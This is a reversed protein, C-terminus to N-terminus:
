YTTGGFAENLRKINELMEESTMERKQNLTMKNLVNSLNPLKKSREFAATYYAQTILTKMEEIKLNNYEELRINLEKPTM